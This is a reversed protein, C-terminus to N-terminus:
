TLEALQKRLDIVEKDQLAPILKGDEFLKFYHRAQNIDSENGSHIYASAMSLYFQQRLELPINSKQEIFLKKFWSEDIFVQDFYRNIKGIGAFTALRYIRVEFNDPALMVAQNLGDCADWLTYIKYLGMSLDIMAGSLKADNASSAALALANKPELNLARDLYAKAADLENHLTHMSGLQTLLSVDDSYEALEDRLSKLTKLEQTSYDKKPFDIPAAGMFWAITNGIILNIMVIVLIKKMMLRSM